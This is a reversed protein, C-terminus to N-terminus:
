AWSDPQKKRRWWVIALLMSVSSLAVTMFPWYGMLSGNTTEREKKTLESDERLYLLHRRLEPQHVPEKLMPANRKKRRQQMTGQIVTVSEVTSNIGDRVDVEIRDVNIDPALNTYRVTQLVSEFVAPPAPGYLILQREQRDFPDITISTGATDATMTELCQLVCASFGSPAEHPMLVLGTLQGIFNLDAGTATPRAGVIFDVANM